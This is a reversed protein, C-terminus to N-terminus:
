FFISKNCFIFVMDVLDNRSAYFCSGVKGWDLSLSNWKMLNLDTGGM